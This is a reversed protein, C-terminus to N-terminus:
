KVGESLERIDDEFAEKTARDLFAQLEAVSKEEAEVVGGQDDPKVKELMSMAKPVLQLSFKMPDKRAIKWQTYRLLSGAKTQTMRPTAMHQVAWFVARCWELTGEQEVDTLELSSPPEKPKNKSGKPRGRKRKAPTTKNKPVVKEDLQQESLFEAM